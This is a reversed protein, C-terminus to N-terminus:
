HGTVKSRVSRGICDRQKCPEVPKHSPKSNHDCLGSHVSKGGVTCVVRVSRVGQGCQRSCEALSVSWVYPSVRVRQEPWSEHGMGLPSPRATATENQGSGEGEEDDLFRANHLPTALPVALHRSELWDGLRRGRSARVLTFTELHSEVPEPQSRHRPLPTLKVPRLSKRSSPWTRSGSQLLHAPRQLSLTWSVYDAEPDDSAQVASKRFHATPSPPTSSRRVKAVRFHGARLPWDASRRMRRHALTRAMFSDYALSPSVPSPGLGLKSTARKYLENSFISSYSDVSFRIPDTM